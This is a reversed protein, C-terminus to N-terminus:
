IENKLERRLKKNQLKTNMTLQYIDTEKFFYKGFGTDLNIANIRVQMDPDYLDDTRIYRYGDSKKLVFCDGPYLNGFKTIARSM